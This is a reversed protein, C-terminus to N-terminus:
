LFLCFFLSIIKRLEQLALSLQNEVTKKSIGLTNAIDTNNMGKNRSLIYIKQRQVPMRSVTIETLLSIERAFLVEEPTAVDSTYQFSNTYTQEVLKHKIFNFAANRAITYIYAGIPKEENLAERNTWLKVFVDQALEEADADSKIIGDIFLRVKKFYFLFVEEFAKHNGKRLAEITEKEM